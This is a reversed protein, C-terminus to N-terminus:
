PVQELLIECHKKWSHENIFRKIDSQLKSYSDHNDHDMIFRIIKETETPENVILGCDYGSIEDSMGLGLNVIIPVGLELAEITGYGPGEEDVGFRLYFKSRSILDSKDSESLNSLFRVKDTIGRENLKEMFSERYADTIWNGIMLFDYGELKEFLNLYLDPFKVDSWYSILAVTNNKESFERFFRCEM